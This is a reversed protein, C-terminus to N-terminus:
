IFVFLQMLYPNGFNVRWFEGLREPLFGLSTRKFEFGTLFYFNIAVFYILIFGHHM